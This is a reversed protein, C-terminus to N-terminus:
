TVVLVAGRVGPHRLPPCPRTRAASGAAGVHRKFEQKRGAPAGVQARQAQKLQIPSRDGDIVIVEARHMAAVAAPRSWRRSRGLPQRQVLSQKDASAPVPRRKHGRCGYHGRRDSLDDAHQATEELVSGICSDVRQPRDRVRRLATM